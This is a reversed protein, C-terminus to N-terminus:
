FRWCQQRCGVVNNNNSATKFSGTSLPHMNYLHIWTTQNAPKIFSNHELMKIYCYWSFICLKNFAVSPPFLWFELSFKEYRIELYVNLKLSYIASKIKLNEYRLIIEVSSGEVVVVLSLFSSRLNPIGM